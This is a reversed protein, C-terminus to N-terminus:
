LNQNTHSAQRFDCKTCYWIGRQDTVNASDLYFWGKSITALLYTALLYQVLPSKLCNLQEVYHVDSSPVM